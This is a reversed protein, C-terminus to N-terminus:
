RCDSNPNSQPKAQVHFTHEGVYKLIRKLSGALTAVAPLSAIVTVRTGLKLQSEIELKASIAAARNRMGRLGFGLLDGSKVFGAGDDQIVLRVIKDEYHLSISLNNPDAHRVANAIAEQGIRLLGVAVRPPMPRPNGTSATIVNVSGGEVMGRALNGLSPLVDVREELGPDLQEISRRAEKHSHRVLDRAL